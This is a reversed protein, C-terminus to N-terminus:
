KYAMKLLEIAKNRYEVPIKNMGMIIDEPNGIVSPHNELEAVVDDLKISAETKIELQEIDQKIAELDFSQELPLLDIMHEIYETPKDDYIKLFVVSGQTPNGKKIYDPRSLCPLYHVTTELDPLGDRRISGTIVHRQHIHGCVIYEAGYWKEFNDLMFPKGVNLTKGEFSYYGHTVIVNTSEEDLRVVTEKQKGFDVMNINVNGIHLIESKKFYGKKLFYEYETMGYSASDHNGKVIWLNNNVIKNHRAFEQEVADRYELNGFRGYTLDGAKIWHTVGEKEALDGLLKFYYLSEKSYDVHYGRASSSLHDDGSIMVNAILGM